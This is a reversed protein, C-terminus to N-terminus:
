LTPTPSPDDCTQPVARIKGEACLIALVFTIELPGEELMLGKDWLGSERLRKVIPRVFSDRPLKTKQAIKDTDNEGHLAWLLVRATEKSTTDIVHEHLLEDLVQSVAEETM